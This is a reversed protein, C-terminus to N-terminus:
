VRVEQEFHRPARSPQAPHPTGKGATADSQVVEGVEILQKFRRLDQSLQTKPITSFIKGLRVGLAGAKPRYEVVLKVVTGRGGAARKFTVTGTNAVKSAATSRWRIMENPTDAGVEAEWEVSLGAPGKVKWRSRGGTEPNVSDLHDMFQAYNRPDKWFEYVQEIPRNVTVTSSLVLHDDEVTDASFSGADHGAAPSAESTLRISSAIDLATVGAVALTAMVLKARNNEPNNMARRLSAIDIADGIVRNWMWYTPKPRTLIGIGAALERVGYARLLREHEEEDIGVIRAVFAPAVLEAIGLGISFWGLFSTVPGKESAVFDSSHRPPGKVTGNRSPVLAQSAM